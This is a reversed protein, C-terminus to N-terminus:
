PMDPTRMRPPKTMQTTGGQRSFRFEHASVQDKMRTLEEALNNHASNLDSVTKKLEERAEHIRSALRARNKWDAAVMGIFIGTLAVTIITIVEMHDGM